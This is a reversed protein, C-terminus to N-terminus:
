IQEKWRFWVKSIVTSNVSQLDPISKISVQIIVGLINNRQQMWHYINQFENLVKYSTGATVFEEYSVVFGNLLM